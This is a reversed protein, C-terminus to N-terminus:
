NTRRLADCRRAALVLAGAVQRGFAVRKVPPTRDTARLDEDGACDWAMRVDAAAMWGLAIRRKMAASLDLSVMEGAAANSDQGKTPDGDAKLNHVTRRDAAVQASDEFRTRDDTPAASDKTGVHRETQDRVGIVAVLETVGAMTAVGIAIPRGKLGTMTAPARLETYM